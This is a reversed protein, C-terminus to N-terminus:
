SVTERWGKGDEKRWKVNELDPRVESTVRPQRRIRDWL